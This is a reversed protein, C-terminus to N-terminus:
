GKPREARIIKYQPSEKIIEGTTFAQKLTQEYALQRNAVMWLVGRPSLNKAASRIFARGLHDDRQRSQHFPPNMIIADYPEVDLNTANAWHFESRPDMVNSRACNLADRDAEILDLSKIDPSLELTHKSLFGWGAGFDAIRGSLPPLLQALFFSGNDIHESSFVGPQTLYGDVNKTPKGTDIWKLFVHPTESKFFWFVKGHDKSIVEEIDVLKKLTKLHSEIGDSKAGNVILLGNEELQAYGRAIMAQTEIKNRSIEIIATHVFSGDDETMGMQSLRSWLPYSKQQYRASKLASLAFRPQANLITLPEKLAGIADLALTLRDTQSM